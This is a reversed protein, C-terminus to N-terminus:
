KSSTNKPDQLGGFIKAIDEETDFTFLDSTVPGM